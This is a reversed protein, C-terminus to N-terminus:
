LTTKGAGNPGILGVIEGSRVELDVEDLASLGGFRVSIGHCVLEPATDVRARPGVPASEAARGATRGAARLPRDTARLPRGAARLPRARRGGPRPEPQPM